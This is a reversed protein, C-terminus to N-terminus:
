SSYSFSTCTALRANSTPQACSYQVQAGRPIKAGEPRFMPAPFRGGSGSSRGGTGHGDERRGATRRARWPRGDGRGQGGQVSTMRPGHLSVVLRAPPTAPIPGAAARIQRRLSAASLRGPGHRGCGNMPRPQCGRPCQGPDPANAGSRVWGDWAVRRSPGGEPLVARPESPRMVAGMERRQFAPM